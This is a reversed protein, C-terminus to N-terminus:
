GAALMGRPDFAVRISRILGNEVHCWNVVPVPEADGVTLSFWTMVDHEDALRLEVELRTTAGALGSLGELCTDRGQISALPGDFTVDDALFASLGSFDRGAWCRFYKEALERPSPVPSPSPEGAPTPDAAPASAPSDTM